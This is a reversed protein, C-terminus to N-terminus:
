ACFTLDYGDDISTFIRMEYPNPLTKSMTIFNNTHKVACGTGEMVQCHTFICQKDSTFIEPKFLLIPDVVLYTDKSVYKLGLFNLPDPLFTPDFLPDSAIPYSSTKFITSSFLIPAAFINPLPKLYRM